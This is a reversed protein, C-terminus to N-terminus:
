YRSILWVRSDEVDMGALVKNEGRKVCVYPYILKRGLLECMVHDTELAALSRALTHPLQITIGLKDRDDRSLLAPAVDSPGATLDMKKRLGDIGASLLASLALYPNALGDILKLEFRHDEIRRLAIEKNEWGWSAYEGGSFLGTAVRSYSAEQSLTFALVSPLHALIGAFFPEAQAAPAPAGTAPDNVSMHVHSGTGAHVPSPRPHLTAHLGFSRAVARIVDRAKVLMDVAKVPREPPLVFEWQGPAAEAHFLELPVDVDALARSIAEILDLDEYDESTVNSFSHSLGTPAYTTKTSGDAQPHKQPRMFIVEVEFGVRIAAGLQHHLTEDLLRLRTRPCEPAPQTADNKRVCDCQVLLRTGQSGPQIYATDLDPLLSFAGSPTGGEAVADGPVLYWIAQALTFLQNTQLMSTFKAVPLIRVLTNGSNNVLQLWVFEIAKHQALIKAWQILSQNDKM